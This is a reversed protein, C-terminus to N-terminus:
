MNLGLIESLNIDNEKIYQELSIVEEEKAYDIYASTQNLDMHGSRKGLLLGEMEPALHTIRTHRLWHPRVQIGIKPSLSYRFYRYTKDYNYPFIADKPKLKKDFIWKDLLTRSEPILFRPVRTKKSKSIKGPIELAGYKKYERKYNAVWNELFEGVRCGLDYVILILLQYEKPSIKLMDIITKPSLYMSKIDEHELKTDKEEGVLLYFNKKVHRMKELIETNRDKPINEGQEYLFIVYKKVASLMANSGEEKLTHNVSDLIEKTPTNLLSIDFDFKKLQTIYAKATRERRHKLIWKRFAELREKPIPM